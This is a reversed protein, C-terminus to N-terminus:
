GRGHVAGRLTTQKLAVVRQCESAASRAGDVADFAASSNPRGAARQGNNTWYDGPNQPATFATLHWCAVDFAQNLILSAALPPPKEVKARTQSTKSSSPGSSVFKEKFQTDRACASGSAPRHVSRPSAAALSRGPQHYAKGVFVRLSCHRHGRPRRL